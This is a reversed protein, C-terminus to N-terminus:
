ALLSDGGFNRQLDIIVKKMGRKKSAKIFRGVFASYEDIGDDSVQFSPVSLVAISSNALFYASLIGGGGSGLDEQALDPVPYARNPWKTQAPRPVRTVTSSPASTSVARPIITTEEEESTEEDEEDDYSSPM